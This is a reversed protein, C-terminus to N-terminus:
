LCILERWAFGSANPNGCPPIFNALKAWHTLNPYPGLGVQGFGLWDRRPPITFDPHSEMLPIHPAPRLSPAPRTISGRFLKTTTM